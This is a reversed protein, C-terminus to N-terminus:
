GCIIKAVKDMERILSLICVLLGSEGLEQASYINGEADM